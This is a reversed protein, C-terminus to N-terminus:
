SHIFELGELYILIFVGIALFFLTLGGGPVMAPAPIKYFYRAQMVMWIPVIGNILAVGLKAIIRQILSIFFHGKLLAAILTVVFILTTILIRKWGKRKEVPIKLGDSLIEVFSTGIGILSTAMSFLATFNLFYIIQPFTQAIAIVQEMDQGLEYMEWYTGSPIAGLMFWQWFIYLILPISTGIWISLKIKKPDRELYTCIAPVIGVFGLASFLIPISFIVYTWDQKMLRSAEVFEAGYYITLAFSVCLASMLLVNIRISFSFGLMVIIAYPVTGLINATFFSIQLNLIQVVLWQMFQSTLTAYSVLYTVLDFSFIIGLVIMWFRGLLARSITFLNSGDPQGLTAEAYLLGIALTLLWVIITVFIGPVFGAIGSYVPISFYSIGTCISAIFIAASFIKGLKKM